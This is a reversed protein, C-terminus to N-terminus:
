MGEDICKLNKGVKTLEMLALPAQYIAENVSASHGMHDYFLQKDKEPLDLTAFITSVRHRNKTATLLNKNEIHVKDCMNTIVHWGSCHNDSGHTSAFLYKNTESIGALRRKSPDCVLEMGPITDKPILVPVLHNNGKGCQYTIKIESILMQEIPDLGEVRQKNIWKDHKADEWEELLLRAPEGGRRANFLTLRAVCADRLQVYTHEDWFMYTDNTIKKIIEVIFNRLKRVDGELPLEQPKRLRKQREKNLHYTADGFIFNKWLGLVAIFKDIEEAMQDDDRSLYTAKMINSSSKILYYLVHKLGAKIQSSDKLTYVDISERLQQFNCRLFMDLANGNKRNVNEQTLFILYMNELRRMDTRVSKRVGMTKDKKRKMKEHLREGITLIVDDSKCLVGVKDNRLTSLIDQQFDESTQRLRTDALLSTSIPMIIKSTDKECNTKHRSFFEAAFFGKCSACM